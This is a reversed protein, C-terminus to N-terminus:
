LLGATQFFTSIRDFVVEPTMYRKDWIDCGVVLCPIGNERCVERIIKLRSNIDRHGIHAPIVVADCKMAKFIWLIDGIYMDTNHMAQRTMGAELVFRKAFSKFMNEESSLDIPTWTGYAVYNTLSIAGLEKQLRPFLDVSPWTGSLDHWFFRIKETVGEIGKKEKVRQEAYNVARELWNTAIPTAQVDPVWRAMETGLRSLDPDAPCPVTKKFEQLEMLLQTQKNSEVCVEKLRDWDMKRGLVGEMFTVAQRLQKGLYDYSAEDTGHPSDVYFRPVHAWPKHNTMLQGLTDMGDCCPNTVIIMDPEVVQGSLLYYMGGKIGNCIRPEVAYTSGIDINKSANPGANAMSGTVTLNSFYCDMAVPIENMFDANAGILPKKGKLANQPELTLTYQSKNVEDKLQALVDSNQVTTNNDTM